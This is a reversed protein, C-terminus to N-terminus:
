LSMLPPWRVLSDAGPITLLPIVYLLTFAFVSPLQTYYLRISTCSAYNHFRMCLHRNLYMKIHDISRNKDWSHDSWSIEWPWLQSGMYSAISTPHISSYPAPSPSFATVGPDECIKILFSSVYCFHEKFYKLLNNFTM